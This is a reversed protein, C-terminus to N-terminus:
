NFLKDLVPIHFSIALMINLKAEWNDNETICKKEILSFYNYISTVNSYNTKLMENWCIFLISLASCLVSM